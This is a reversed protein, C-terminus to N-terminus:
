RCFIFLAKSVLEIRMVFRSIILKCHEGTRHCILNLLFLLLIAGKRGLDVFVTSLPLIRRRADFAEVSRDLAHQIMM